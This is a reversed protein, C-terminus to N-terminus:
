GSRSTRRPLGRRRARASRRVAVAPAAAPSRPLGSPQAIGPTSRPGRSPRWPPVVRRRRKMLRDDDRRSRRPGVRDLHRHDRVHSRDGLDPLGTSTSRPQSGRPAGRGRRMANRSRSGATSANWSSTSVTTSISASLRTTPARRLEVDVVDVGGEGFEVSSVEGALCGGVRVRPRNNCLSVGREVPM